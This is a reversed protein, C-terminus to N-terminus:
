TISEGAPLPGYAFRVVWEGRLLALGGTMWFAATFLFSGVPQGAMPAKVALANVLYALTYMGWLVMALGFTRVVVGFIDRPRPRREHPTAYPIAPETM